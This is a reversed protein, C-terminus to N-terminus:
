FKLLVQDARAHIRSIHEYLREGSLRRAMRESTRGASDEITTAVLPSRYRELRAESPPTMQQLPEIAATRAVRAEFGRARALLSRVTPPAIELAAMNEAIYRASPAIEGHGASMGITGVLLPLVAFTESQPSTEAAGVEETAAVIESAAAVMAPAAGEPMPDTLAVPPDVAYEAASYSSVAPVIRESELTVTAAPESRYDRVTFFTVALVASAGLPLHYRAYKSFVQPLERWWPRKEVLAALQKARLERDFEDWFEPAPREARKLRLLDELSVPRKGDHTM